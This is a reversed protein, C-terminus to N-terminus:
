PTADVDRPVLLGAQRLLKEVVAEIDQYSAESIAPRAIIVIDYGTILYPLWSRATARLRRKVLNRRTAKGVRRSVVFGFRNHPLGSSITNLILLKDHWRKGRQRSADFDEHHRLRFHRPLM